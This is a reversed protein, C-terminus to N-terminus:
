AGQGAREARIEAASRDAGVVEGITRLAPRNRSQGILGDDRRDRITLAHEDGRVVHVGVRFDLAQGRELRQRLTTLPIEIPIDIASVRAVLPAPLAVMLLLLTLLGTGRM